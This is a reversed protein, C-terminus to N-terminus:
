LTKRTYIILMLILKGITATLFPKTVARAILRPWRKNKDAESTLSVTKLSQKCSDFAQKRLIIKELFYATLGAFTWTVGDVTFIDNFCLIRCVNYITIQTKDSSYLYFPKGFWFFNVTVYSNVTPCFVTFIVTFKSWLCTKFLLSPSEDNM